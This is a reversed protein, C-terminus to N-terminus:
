GFVITGNGYERLRNWCADDILGFDFPGTTRNTGRLIRWRSGAEFTPATFARFDSLPNTTSLNWFSTDNFLIIRAKKDFAVARKSYDSEFRIKFVGHDSENCYTQLMQVPRPRVIAVFIALVVVGVATSVLSLIMMRKSFGFM